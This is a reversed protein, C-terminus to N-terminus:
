ECMGSIPSYTEHDLSEEVLNDAPTLDTNIVLLPKEEPDQSVPGAVREEIEEAIPAISEEESSQRSRRARSGEKSQTAGTQTLEM